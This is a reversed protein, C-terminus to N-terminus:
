PTPRNKELLISNRKDNLDKWIVRLEAKRSNYDRKQEDTTNTFDLRYKIREYENKADKMKRLLEDEENM